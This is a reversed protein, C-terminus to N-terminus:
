EGSSQWSPVPAVDEPWLVPYAETYIWDQSEAPIHCSKCDLIYNQAVQKDPEAAEFLAWGWGDGWLANDPFRGEADKVMVFWVQKETAYSANGTTLAATAAGRVEKVLVTGDAFTGNARFSEIGGPSVYVQHMGNQIDDAGATSWSGLTPWTEFDAPRSIDGTASVIDAPWGGEISTLDAGTNADDGQDTAQQCASLGILLPACVLLKWSM